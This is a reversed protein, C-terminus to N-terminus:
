ENQIAELINLRAARRAPLIAALVGFVGAVILFIIMSGWPISLEKFEPIALVSVVGLFVGLILGVLAGILAVIIAEWRIMARVSRRSLGVARLLGIERTREFVSLALTLVIGFIAIIVAMALLIYFLQLFSNIQSAVFDKYEAKTRVDLNPFETLRKEAAAKAQEPSVGEAARVLIVTDQQTTFNREYEPLSIFFQGFTDDTFIASVRLKQDGTKAFLVPMQSGLTLDHDKAYDEQVAITNPEALSTMSGDTVGPDYLSDLTSPDVGSVSQTSGGSDKFEGDRWASVGALAPDGELSAAAAPSFPQQSSSIIILDARVRKDLTGIFTEQLSSAFVTVGTVLAVGITLAAATQATRSPNRMANEQGLRGALGAKTMPWGIVKALPRAVYQTLMAAGIFLLVAGLGISAFRQGLGGSALLGGLVLLM